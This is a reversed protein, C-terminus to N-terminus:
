PRAGQARVADLDRWGAMVEKARRQDGGNFWGEVLITLVDLLVDPDPNSRCRDLVAALFTAKTENRERDFDARHAKAIAVQDLWKQRRAEARRDEEEATLIRRAPRSRGDRGVVRAPTALQGGTSLQGVDNAVQSKSAGVAGAIARLSHGQERLAGVVARRQDPTLHRRDANLTRAYERAEDEDKISVIIEDPFVGLDAAIRSRQNGDLIRGNQDKVIPIIVGFRQISARLAAEVDPELDPFPQIIETMAAVGARTPRAGGTFHSVPEAVRSSGDRGVGAPGDVRIYDRAEQRPGATPTPKPPQVHM